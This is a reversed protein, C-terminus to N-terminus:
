RENGEMVMDQAAAPISEQQHCNSAQPNSKFALSKINKYYFERLFSLLNRTQKWDPEHYFLVLVM